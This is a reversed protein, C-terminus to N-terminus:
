MVSPDIVAEDLGAKRGPRALAHLDRRDRAKAILAAAIVTKGSGTPAVLCLRRLGAAIKSEVGRVVDLQYDRPLVREKRGDIIDNAAM